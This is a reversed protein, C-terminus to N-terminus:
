IIGSSLQLFGDLGSSDLEKIFIPTAEANSESLGAYLGSSSFLSTPATPTSNRGNM